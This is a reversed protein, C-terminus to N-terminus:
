MLRLHHSVGTVANDMCLGYIRHSVQKTGLFCM